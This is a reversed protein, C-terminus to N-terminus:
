CVLLTPWILETILESTVTQLIEVRGRHGRRSSMHGGDATDAGQNVRTVGETEAPSPLLNTLFKVTQLRDTVSSEPTPTPGSYQQISESFNRVRPHERCNHKYM